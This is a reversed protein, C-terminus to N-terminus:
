EQKLVVRHATGMSIYVRLAKHVNEQKNSHENSHENSHKLTNIANWSFLNTLM